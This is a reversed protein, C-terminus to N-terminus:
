FLLTLDPAPIRRSCRVLGNATRPDWIKVARIHAGQNASITREGGAGLNGFAHSQSAQDSLWTRHDPKRQGEKGWELMRARMAKVVWSDVFSPPVEM